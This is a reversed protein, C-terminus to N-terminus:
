IIIIIIKTENLLIEDADYVILGNRIDRLYIAILCKIMKNLFM